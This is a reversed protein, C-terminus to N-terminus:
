IQEILLDYDKTDIVKANIFHGPKATCKKIICISDIDPAQGYFRGHGSSNGNIDDVLCTLKEGIRNKNKDFAIKQQTLMLEDLRQEKVKDPVQDPMEAAATGSEAYFKFSGLADFEAWKVFNLLESFQKDTESPFGVIITTRLVIDPMACRLKEILQKLRDKTDQRRMAKLIKNNVHQIPIDLYHVVKKSEAITEILKDDIGSPNLYMLRIWTLDDIKDLEKIILTALGNEIKLDRGYYTSDQAILNLEVVGASVLETAEAMILKMPKSRFRGRIAPITCFSCRHDCGESIRLYAWHGPTILLRTRDDNITESSPKLYAVPQKSSLTERIINAINDRQGLGVITDIGDVQNFLQQGARESLCGAVIVKKVNGKLKHNVANQIAELSEDKAPAIFGCTNIIVIDATYPEASILFDAEVIEALMRESDVLNKPCGLSVFGVTFKQKKRSTM